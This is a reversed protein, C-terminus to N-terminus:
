NSADLLKLGDISTSLIRHDSTMFSYREKRAISILMNDFPDKNNPNFVAYGKLAGLDPDLLEIGMKPLDDIISNDLVMKGVSTKIAIEFFSFYSIFVRNSTDSLITRSKRGLRSDQNVLWIFVQTDVLIKM